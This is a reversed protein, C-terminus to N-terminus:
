YNKLLRFRHLLNILLRVMKNFVAAFLPLFRYVCIMAGGYFTSLNLPQKRVIGSRMCADIKKKCRLMLYSKFEHSHGTQLYGSAFLWYQFDLLERYRGGCRGSVAKELLSLAHLQEDVVWIDEKRTSSNDNYRYYYYCIDAYYVKPYFTGFAANALLDEALTIEPYKLYGAKILFDRRYLRNWIYHELSGDLIGALYGDGEMMGYPRRSRRRVVGGDPREEWNDAMIIDCGKAEGEAIEMFASVMGEGVHDDGDLFLIFEGRSARLGAKRAGIIGRNEQDVIVLGRGTYQYGIAVALTDDTSGDNVFVLEDDDGLQNMLSALCRGIYSAINYGIVIVSLRCEGM